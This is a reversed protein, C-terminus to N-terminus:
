RNNNSPRNASKFAPFPNFSVLHTFFNMSVEEVVKISGYHTNWSVLNERARRTRTAKGMMWGVESHWTRAAWKNRESRPFPTVTRPATSQMMAWVHISM